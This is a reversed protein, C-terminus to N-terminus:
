WVIASADNGTQAEEIMHESLLNWSLFNGASTPEGTEPNYTENMGGTKNLDATLLGVVKDALEAAEKKYGYNYLGHMLMYSSVVWVPGRWYGNKADYLPEDASLTRLGKEAWFERTNLVHGDILRKAQEPSAIGAWLPTLNTWEKIKVMGGTRSDINYFMGDKDNWMRSAVLKKLDVAKSAYLAADDKKGLREALVTMALYERYIYCQLDVGETVLSPKDSVVPSNDIGSEVGNYWVFLGDASKRNNEWFSLMAALKDYNSEWKGGTSKELLWSVDGMTRSARLAAQAMFPKCMEPLSWLADTAIERPTYGHWDASEDVYELFDQVSSAVPKGVGDYSLAVGMFYMDWDFLHTYPGDPVLYQRKLMGNPPKIVKQKFGKSNFFDQLTRQQAACPLAVLVLLLAAALKM